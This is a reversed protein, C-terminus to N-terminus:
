NINLRDNQMKKLKLKLRDRCSTESKTNTEIIQIDKQQKQKEIFEEKTLPKGLSFGKLLDKISQSDSM